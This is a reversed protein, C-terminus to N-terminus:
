TKPNKESTHKVQRNSDLDCKFALLLRKWTTLKGELLLM